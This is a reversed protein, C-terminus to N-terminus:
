EDQLDVLARTRGRHGPLRRAVAAPAIAVGPARRRVGDDPAPWRALSVRVAAARELRRDPRCPTSQRLTFGRSSRGSTRAIAKAEQTRDIPQPAERATPSSAPPPAAPATPAAPSPPVVPAAPPPAPVVPTAPAPSALRLAPQPCGGECPNAFYTFYSSTTGLTGAAKAAVYVFRM